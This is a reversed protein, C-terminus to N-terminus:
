FILILSDEGIYAIFQKEGCEFAANRRHESNPGATIHHCKGAEKGQRSFIRYYLTCFKIASCPNYSNYNILYRKGASSCTAM